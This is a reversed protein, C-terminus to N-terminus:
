VNDLKSDGGYLHTGELLSGVYREITHLKQRNYNSRIVIFVIRFSKHHKHAYPPVRHLFNCIINKWTLDCWIDVVLSCKDLIHTFNCELNYVAQCTIGTEWAFMIDAM